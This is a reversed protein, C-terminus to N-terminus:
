QYHKAQSEFLRAYTGELRMLEEHSGSEVIRGASMAYIRDAMKVTSLRHSILIATRDAALERFREIVEVETQADLASTPEDLITIQSRRLFARALAVKQWQGISLEEGGQFRRGLTTEYGKPLKALVDDVGALRAAAAVQEDQPDLDVDGFWINERATMDYRNYDQFVVSIERRLDAARIQRLDVGDISISGATPEYLRCLLKVLTTKGAGNEGVLAVTEGPRLVMSVGDLARRETGPYHFTVADLEIGRRMPHPVPTPETPEKIRPEFALFDVFASLFLNNGYLDALSRLLQRLFTQGRQFAQFYMVLDGLTIMGQVTRYAIFFLSGFIAVTGSGQAVLEAVSRRKAIGLQEARLQKRVGLFRSMFLAGLGFLRLEKAHEARTLVQNFYRALRERPAADHYWRYITDAFRLRVVLGPLSAALLVLPVSWHFLFLLGAMALLSIGNQIIQGVADLIMRPRNPARQQALHLTDHYESNEYYELDVESSKGHLGDLMHDSLYEALVEGAYTQAAQLIVGTLAVAGSLAVLWGVPTFDVASAPGTVTGEVTDVLLKLLYLAVLPLLGQLVTLGLTLVAWGRGGRWVLALAPRLDLSDKLKSRTSPSDSM